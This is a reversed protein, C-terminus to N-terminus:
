QRGGRVEWYLEKFRNQECALESARLKRLLASCSPQPARKLGSEVFKRVQDDTMRKRQLKPTQPSRKILAEVRKGVSEADFGWSSVKKLILSAVRAHLSVCSGGLKPQLRTSSIVAHDRLLGNTLKCPSTVVMLRGPSTFVSLAAQLDNETAALYHPSAVLLFYSRGSDLLLEALSYPEDKGGGAFQCLSGWWTQLMTDREQASQGTIVVSDPEASAFTASYPNIRANAPILGYGASMVWLRAKFGADRALEPLERATAWHEGAYLDEVTVRTGRHRGLRRCWEEVRGELGAAPVSRLRLDDSVSVTKRNTCNVIIQLSPKM